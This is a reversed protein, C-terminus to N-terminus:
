INILYHVHQELFHINKLWNYQYVFKKQVGNIIEISICRGVMLCNSMCRGVLYELLQNNWATFFVSKYSKRWNKKCFYGFKVYVNYSCAFFFGSSITFICLKEIKTLCMELNQAFEAFNQMMQCWKFNRHGVMPCNFMCEGVM